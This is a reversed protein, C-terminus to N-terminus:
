IKLSKQLIIKLLRSLQFFTLNNTRKFSDTPRKTINEVVTRQKAFFCLFLKTNFIDLQWSQETMFSSASYNVSFNVEKPSFVSIYM